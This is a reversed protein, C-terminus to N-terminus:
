VGSILPICARIEVRGISTGAKGQLLSLGTFSTTCPGYSHNM